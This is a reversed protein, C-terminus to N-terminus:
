CGKSLLGIKLIIKSLSELWDPIQSQDAIFMNGFESFFEFYFNKHIDDSPELFLWISRGRLPKNNGVVVSHNCDIM